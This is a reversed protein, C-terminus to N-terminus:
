GFDPRDAQGFAAQKLEQDTRSIKLLEAKKRWGRVSTKVQTIIERAKKLDLRFYEHVEMALELDLSNDDESINIKLGTGTEVPNIDYAPSLVWGKDSLLFGHNRLHDDVNSVCISFVIRRWLQELDKQVNKGYTQIFHALELYSVGTPMSM